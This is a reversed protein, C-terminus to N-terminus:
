WDVRENEAALRAVEEVRKARTEKRKASLVWYLVQKRYSSNLAEFNEKAPPLSRLANELDEPIRMEEVEDLIGWSGDEKAAEVKSLGAPAMLGQEMMKRVREKNPKSWISGRRRPSMLQKFGEEDMSNVRSDIWGFCLAEEVAEQQSIGKRRAGKKSIVLWVGTSRDHNRKLWRRWKARDMDYLVELQDGRAMQNGQFMDGSPSFFTLAV